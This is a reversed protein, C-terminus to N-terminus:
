FPTFVCSPSINAHFKVCPMVIDGDDARPVGANLGSKGCRPHPQARKHKGDVQVSHAVHGAVGGDASRSLPMQHPLKVRQASFHCLRCVAAADLVPHEVAPLPRRDM